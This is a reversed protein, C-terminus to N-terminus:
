LNVGGLVTGHTSCPLLFPTCRYVVVKVPKEGYRALLTTKIDRWEAFVEAYPFVSKLEEHKLGSSCVFLRHQKQFTIRTTTKLKAIPRQFDALRFHRLRRLVRAFLQYSVPFLEHTGLGRPCAAIVIKSADKKALELAWMGRDHAVQWSIDFPYMDIVVVDADPKLPVQYMAKAARVGEEYALESDGAFLGNIHRQNDLTVNVIFNLGIQKAVAAMEQRLRSHISGGRVCSGPLYDHMIRITETGCVGPLIIKPGGSFGAAPHPCICGLGIKLDCEMLTRNIHLPLGSPSFGLDILNRQCDHAIVRVTSLLESGVKKAMDEPSAPQHTGGAIIITVASEHIGGRKLEELLFPLIHAAPTPRTLDDVVIAARGSKKALESLAPTGIPQSLRVRIQDETLAPQAEPAVVSVQWSPPFDVTVSEDGFWAKTFLQVETM